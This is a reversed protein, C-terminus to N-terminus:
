PHEKVREIVNLTTDFLDTVWIEAEFLKEELVRAWFKRVLYGFIFLARDDIWKTVEGAIRTFYQEAFARKQPSWPEHRAIFQAQEAESWRKHDLLRGQQSITWFLIARLVDECHARAAQTTFSSKFRLMIRVVQTAEEYMKGRKGFFVGDVSYMSWGKFPSKYMEIRELAEEVTPLTDRPTTTTYNQPDFLSPYSQFEKILSEVNRRLYERVEEPDYGLRLADFIAGQYAARKPFYIETFINRESRGLAYWPADPNPM